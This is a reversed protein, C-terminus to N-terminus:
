SCTPLPHLLDTWKFEGPLLSQTLIFGLPCCRPAFRSRAAGAGAAHAASPIHSSRGVVDIIEVLDVSMISTSTLCQTNGGKCLASIDKSHKSAHVATLGAVSAQGAAAHKSFSLAM